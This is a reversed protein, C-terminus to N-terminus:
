LCTLGEAKSGATIFSPLGNNWTNYLRDQEKYFDRRKQRIYLSDSTPCDGPALGANITRDEKSRLDIGDWARRLTFNEILSLNIWVSGSAVFHVPTRAIM